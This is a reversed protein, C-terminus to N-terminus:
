LMMTRHAFFTRFMNLDFNFCCWRLITCFIALFIAILHVFLPSGHAYLEIKNNNNNTNNKQLFRINACIFLRMWHSNHSHVVHLLLHGWCIFVGYFWCVSRINNKMWYRSVRLVNSPRMLFWVICLWNVSESPCMCTFGASSGNM